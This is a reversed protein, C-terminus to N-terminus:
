KTKFSQWLIPFLTKLWLKLLAEPYHSRFHSRIFFLYEKYALGKVSYLYSIRQKLTRSQPIWNNGHDDSCFGLIGPAVFTQIGSNAAKLTYDYDAIGHTYVDSLIGIKQVVNNSVLMINANGLDCLLPQDNSFVIKSKPSKRSILRKGGYSINGSLIDETTGVAIIETNKERQFTQHINILRHIATPILVTDDNLLLYYDYSGSQMARSWSNRMGGAWYLKGNGDYLKVEPFKQRVSNATFDSSCDDTLHIDLISLNACHQQMVSELCHLTKDRRNFTTILVAIRM